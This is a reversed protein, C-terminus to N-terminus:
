NRSSGRSCLVDTFHKWWIRDVANRKIESWTKWVEMAEEKVMM